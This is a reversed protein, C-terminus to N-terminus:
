LIIPRDLAENVHATINVIRASVKDIRKVTQPNIRVALRGWRIDDPDHELTGVMLRGANLGIAVTDGERLVKGRCDLM